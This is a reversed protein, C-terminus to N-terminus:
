SAMSSTVSECAATGGPTNAGPQLVGYAAARSPDLLSALSRWAWPTEWTGEGDLQRTKDSSTAGDHRERWDATLDGSCAAVLVAHRVQKLLRPVRTLRGRAHNLQRLLADVTAVIRRQEALPAVPLEVSRLFDTPVRAQGVAGNM